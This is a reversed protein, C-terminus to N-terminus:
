RRVRRAQAPAPAPAPPEFRSQHCGDPAIGVFVGGERDDLGSVVRIVAAWVGHTMAREGFVTRLVEPGGDDYPSAECWGHEVQRVCVGASPELGFAGGPSAAAM